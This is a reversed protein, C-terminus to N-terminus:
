YILFWLYQSIQLVNFLLIILSQRDMLQVLCMLAQFIIFLWKFLKLFQRNLGRHKLNLKLLIIIWINMILLPFQQFSSSSSFNMFSNLIIFTLFYIDTLRAADLTVRYYFIPVIQLVGLQTIIIWFFQLFSPIIHIPAYAILCANFSSSDLARLTSWPRSIIQLSILKNFLQINVILILFWCVILYIWHVPFLWYTCVSVLSQSVLYFFDNILFVFLFRDVLIRVEGSRLHHVLLQHFATLLLNLAVLRFPIM